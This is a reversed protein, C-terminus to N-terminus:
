NNITIDKASFVHIQYAGDYCSVIGKVDINKGILDSETMTVGDVSLVETRVTIKEEGSSCTLTMAGASDGTKTTYISDVTLDKMEISTDMVAAAYDLTIEDDNDGSSVSIKSNFTEADTLMYSPSNGDSIKKINSPDNPKMPRYSLGAVQYTGATEYLQLTGVIRSRNGTNLIDLGSSLSYGYYIAMGYYLGSDEDYDEIYASGSDNKTIVGEFAVKIGKYKEANLRLEKLTLEVADGYYFDPDKEGSYVSLKNQKASNIASVCIDGYRNNASSSAIALGNQLIEINLNRYDADESPKYWVWVLFRQGTSDKNWNEDDSEIIISVASSLKEKTFNSARKGYEEIKGTSEPTNIALYRAKLVGDESVDTPVNFHTTDGDIFTKVTVELKVTESNMNLKTTDAYDVTTYDISPKKQTNQTDDTNQIDNQCAATSLVTAILVIASLLKKIRKM